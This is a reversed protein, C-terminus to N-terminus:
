GFGQDTQVFTPYFALKLMLLIKSYDHYSNLVKQTTSQYNIFLLIPEVDIRDLAIIVSCYVFVLGVSIRDVPMYLPLAGILMPLAVRASVWTVSNVYGSDESSIAVDM